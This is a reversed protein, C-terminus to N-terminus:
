FDQTGYGTMWYPDGNRIAGVGDVRGGLLKQTWGYDCRWDSNQSGWATDFSAACVRQYSDISWGNVAQLTHRTGAYCNTGSPMGAYQCFHQTYAGSSAPAALACAAAALLASLLVRRRLLRRPPKPSRAPM